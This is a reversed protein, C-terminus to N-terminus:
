GCAPVAAASGAQRHGPRQLFCETILLDELERINALDLSAMLEAYPIEQVSLLISYLSAKLEVQQVTCSTMEGM